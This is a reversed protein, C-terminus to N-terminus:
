HITKQLKSLDFGKEALFDLINQYTDEDMEKTRSLIWLYNKTPESVVAYQYYDDLKIIWYNGAFMPLKFWTLFFQVKLKANTTEDVVWARAKAKKLEGNPSHLRCQNLVNVEGKTNLSYTATTATCGEQFKQPYSAIEYWKGMYREVDVYNVSKLEQDAGFATFTVVSLFTLLLLKM